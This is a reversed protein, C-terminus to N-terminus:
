ATLARRLFASRMSVCATVVSTGASERSWRHPRTAPNQPSSAPTMPANKFTSWNRREHSMPKRKQMPKDM